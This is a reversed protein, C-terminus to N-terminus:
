FPVRTTSPPKPIFFRDDDQRARFRRAEFAARAADLDPQIDSYPVDEFSRDVIEQQEGFMGVTTAPFFAGEVQLFESYYEQRFMLEGKSIREEELFEKSIRPCEDATVRRSWFYSALRGEVSEYFEGQPGNPSSIMILAGATAAIMPRVADVTEQPVFAAEDMALVHPDYGRAADPDRCPVCVVMSGERHMISLTNLVEMDKRDLYRLAARKVKRMFYSAQSLTRSLVVIRFDPVHVFLYALAIAIVTSKGSQRSAVVSIRNSELVALLVEVQWQDPPQGIEITFFEVPDQPPLPKPPGNHARKRLRAAARDMKARFAGTAM